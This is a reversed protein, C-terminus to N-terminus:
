SGRARRSSRATPESETLPAGAPAPARSSSCRSGSPRRRHHSNSSAISQLRPCAQAEATVVDDHRTARFPPIRAKVLDERVHRVIRNLRESASHRRLKPAGAAPSRISLFAGEAVPSITAVPTDRDLITLTHGRRVYRLHESLRAKLDAINVRKMVLHYDRRTM